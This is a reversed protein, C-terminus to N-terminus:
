NLELARLEDETNANTFAQPNDSPGDFHVLAATLTRTWADIKRGGGQMFQLLSPLLEKKLLCFVPETRGNQAAMAIDAGHHALGHWLRDALDVPFLPCDCPVTLLYPTKCHSLGVAFGALPGSFDLDSDPYISYGLAAYTELNRNANIFIHGVQTKLRRAAHAALTQGKLLKLGKDSGGMRSARGGALIIGTIAENVV